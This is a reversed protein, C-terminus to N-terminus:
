QRTLLYSAASTTGTDLDTLEWFLQLKSNNDTILAVGDILFQQSQRTGRLNVQYAAIDSRAILSGTLVHGLTTNGTSVFGAADITLNILHPVSGEARGQWTGMNLQLAPRNLNDAFSYVTSNNLSLSAPNINPNITGQLDVPTSTAGFNSQLDYRRGKASITESNLANATLVTLTDGTSNIVWLKANRVDPALPPLLLATSRDGGIQTMSGQLSPSAMLVPKILSSWALTTGVAGGGGGGCGLIGATLVTSFATLAIKKMKKIM